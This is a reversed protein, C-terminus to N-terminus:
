RRRKGFRLLGLIKMTKYLTLGAGVQRSASEDDVGKLSSIYAYYGLYKMRFIRGLQKYGLLKKIFYVYGQYNEVIVSDFNLSIGDASYEGLRIFGNHWRIKYGEDAIAFWLAWETVFREGPIEPYKHRKLLDVYLAEAKDGTINHRRVHFSSADVHDGQFTTGTLKRKSSGCNGAVGAFGPADKIASEWRLIKECADEELFDDSGCTLFLRGQALDFGRNYARTLGENSAVRHYRIAFPNEEGCWVSFLKETGDESGDDVVLWEFDFRTQSQLSRYVATLTHARNYTPTFITLYPAESM